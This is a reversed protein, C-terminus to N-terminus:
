EWAAFVLSLVVLGFCVLIRDEVHGAASENVRQPNPLLWAFAVGAV